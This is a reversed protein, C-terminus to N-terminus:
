KLESSNLTQQLVPILKKFKPDSIILDGTGWLFSKLNSERQFKLIRLPVTLTIELSGGLKSPYWQLDSMAMKADLKM